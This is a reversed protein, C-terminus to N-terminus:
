ATAAGPAVTSVLLAARLNNVQIAKSQHQRRRNFLRSNTM